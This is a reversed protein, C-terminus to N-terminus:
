YYFVDVTRAMGCSTIMGAPEFIPVGTVPVM